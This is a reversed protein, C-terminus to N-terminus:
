RRGGQLDDIAKELEGASLPEHPTEAPSAGMFQVEFCEGCDPCEHERTEGIRYDARVYFRFGCDPCSHAVIILDADPAEDDMRYCNSCVREDGIERVLAVSEGCRDCETM